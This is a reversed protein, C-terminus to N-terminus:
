RFVKFAEMIIGGAQLTRDTLERDALGNYIEICRQADEITWFTCFAISLGIGTNHPVFVDEPYLGYWELHTKITPKFCDKRLGGLFVKFADLSASMIGVSLQACVAVSSSCLKLRCLQVSM